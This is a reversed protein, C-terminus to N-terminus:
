SSMSAAFTVRSPGKNRRRNLEEAGQHLLRPHRREKRHGGVLVRSLARRKTVAIAVTRAPPRVTM